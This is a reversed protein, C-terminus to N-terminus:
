SRTSDDGLLDTILGTLRKAEHDWTHQAAWAIRSEKLEQENSAPPALCREAFQAPTAALRIGDAPLEGAIRVVEPLMVSVVPTGISLYENIKEPYMADTFPTRRHALVLADAQRYLSPFDRYAVAGTFHVRPHADLRQLERPLRPSKTGAFVLSGVQRADMESVLKLFMAPDLRQDAVGGYILLPKPLAALRKALARGPASPEATAFGNQVANGVLHAAKAFESRRALQSTSSCLCLDVDALLEREWSDLRASQATTYIPSLPLEDYVHYILRAPGACLRALEGHWPAGFWYIRPTRDVAGQMARFMATSTAARWKEGAWGMPAYRVAFPLTWGPTVVRLRGKSGVPLAYDRQRTQLTFRRPPEVYVVEWGSRALGWLHYRPSGSLPADAM